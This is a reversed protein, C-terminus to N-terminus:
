AYRNGKRINDPEWLPQLNYWNVAELLQERDTLDFSSLPKVHDIEWEGYNEWNMGLQFQYMLWCKLQEISCGLDRIASGAKQNSKIAQNLRSRLNGALRFQIDAKRRDLYYGRMYDQRHESNRRKHDYEREKELNEEHWKRKSERRKEPNATVWNRYEDPKAERRKRGYERKKEPDKYPM